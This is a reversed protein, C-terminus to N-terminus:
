GEEQPLDDLNLSPRQRRTKVTLNTLNTFAWVGACLLLMTDRTGKLSLCCLYVTLLSLLWLARHNGMDADFAAQQYATLMLGVYACLYFCYDMLQPDSSWSRYQCVMRLAFYVCLAAHFLFLPKAGCLRCYAVVGLSLASGFGLVTLLIQLSSDVASLESVTTILLMVGLILAGAAAPVSAPYCDQYREPGQISRTLLFTGVAVIATLLWLLVHAWHGSVLLGKADTGTTYLLIRLILGLGGAGLVLYKLLQPKVSLKM